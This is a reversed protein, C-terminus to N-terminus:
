TNNKDSKLPRYQRELLRRREVQMTLGEREESRGHGEGGIIANTRAYQQARHSRVHSCARARWWDLEVTEEEESEDKESRM